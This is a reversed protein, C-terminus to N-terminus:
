WKISVAATGGYSQSQAGVLADAKLSLSVNDTDHQVGLSIHGADRAPAAGTVTFSAGSFASFTAVDQIGDAYDHVWGLRAHLDTAEAVRQDWSSGIESSYDFHHRSTYTLAYASSGAVTSEAYTPMGIDSGQWRLYPTLLGDSTEFTRGFEFRAAIDQATFDAHYANTGGFVVTRDTKVDFHGYSAAADFYFKRESGFRRSYYAGAQIGSARGKGLDQSLSWNQQGFDVAIGVAANGSRPTFDLGIDGAYATENSNHSGALPDAGSKAVGGHFAGWLMLARRNARQYPADGNSALQDFSENDALTLAGGPNGLGGRGGVAPDLMTGLFSDTAHVAALQAQTAEEGSMQSLVTTIQDPTLSGFGAFAAAGNDHAIAFDVASAVNGQNNTAGAPLLPAISAPALTLFADDADYGLLAVLNPGFSPAILASFTGTVGGAATLVTIKQGYTYGSGTPNVMLTGGLAAQGSISLLDTTTPTVDALYIASSSFTANGNVHLTGIGNVGPAVAGAGGFTLTGVTGTGGLTGGTNITTASSAISGTVLLTGGNVNTPGTYTNTASLTTVGIGLQTVSGSGSIAGGFTMADSRDFVLAGGDAIAGSVSGTTGGDGIQLTGGAITTGGAATDDGTLILTGGGAQRLSGSGSVAGSFTVADSRDFVLTGDDAVDGTIAGTTGGDGVQLTGSAITTGGTYTDNGTLILTGGGIQRLAGTGSIAGGFTVADSRDFALTANDVIDGAVAGTTGGAGIQLTGASITTGGSYTETSDVITTGTGAQNLTGTGAVVGLTITDSRDIALTANDTVAGQVSGSTGGNGLQLTGATITTGGTYTEDTTLITTGSGAQQVTGGGSILAAEILSDSRDFALTGGDVIATSVVSGSTSGNGLQLAGATIITEGTATSDGTLVLTGTGAQTLMGGGSVIGAFTVADSRDFVLAGNDTVDGAIAGNTAGDGVQLTGATITTGGTYSDAGTLTLTHGADDQTLSGTGSIAGAFTQDSNEEFTLTGNDAVDGAITGATTGDGLQLNGTVTTGGAYTSAGTLVLTGGGAVTLAGTGGIGQGITFVHTADTSITGGGAALTVTRAAALTVDAGAEITGKTTADGLTLGGTAAGLAGDADILLTSGGKVVTGGSYSNATNTPNFTGGGAIELTGPTAGDDIEGSWVSTTGSAISFTPDGDLTANHTYTGSATIRLTTGAAMAVTGGNGLNADSSISVTGADINTGGSYINTGSLTLVGGGGQEVVGNGSVVGGFDINDSRDFSLIGNDLIDGAISGSTGGFGIQLTGAAITTGGTASDVGDIVLTGADVKTLLGAGTIAGSWRDVTNPSVVVTGGGAGLVMANTFDAAGNFALVADNTITIAGTGLATPAALTITGNSLNTGGAYTNVGGLTLVGSGIMSVSGSGSIVGALDIANTRDIALVANDTIDGTVSGTAAVGDGFQLTGDSITTGGTYTSDGTLITTGSGIQSLSGTGTIADALTLVVPATVPPPGASVTTSGLDIVLAGNDTLTGPNSGDTNAVISGTTGGNGIQLTGQDIVTGGTYTDTGTLVTTGTGMQHLTGQGSITGNLMLVTPIMVPPPGASVANDLDIAFTAGSAIAVDGAITGATGGNGIQLAGTAITTGGTFFNSGTLILTDSGDKELRGIGSINHSFTIDNSHDFVLASPDTVVHTVPDVTGGLAIDGAVMGGTGGNGLQLTGLTVLTTGAYTQDATYTLKSDFDKVVFGSGSIVHSFTVDDTHNFFLTGNDAINGVVSGTTGGALDGLSLAGAAITTGGTYTEDNTLVLTGAGTKNLGGDGSILGSVIYSANPASETDINQTGTDLAINRSTTFGATLKLTSGNKIEVGGADDGLNADAGVSLTGQSITTGGTYTNAGSLIIDKSGSFIFLGGGGSIDGGLILDHANTTLHVDTEGGLVMKMNLQTAASTNSQDVLVFNDIMTFIGGGDNVVYGNALTTANSPTQITLSSFTQSIDFNSPAHTGSQALTIDTHAGPVGAPSWNNADSWNNSAGNGTFTATVAMAPSALLGLLSVGLMVATRVRM